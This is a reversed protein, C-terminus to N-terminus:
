DLFLPGEYMEISLDQIKRLTNTFIVSKRSNRLQDKGFFPISELYSKASLDLDLYLQKKKNEQRCMMDTFTKEHPSLFVFLVYFILYTLLDSFQCSLLIFDLFCSNRQMSIALSSWQYLATLQQQFVSWKPIGSLCTVISKWCNVFNKLKIIDIPRM